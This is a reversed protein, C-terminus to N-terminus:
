SPRTNAEIKMQCLATQAQLKLWFAKSQGVSFGCVAGVVACIFGGYQYILQIQMPIVNHLFISAFYGILAGFVTYTVIISNARSYLADAFQQIVIADYNAM